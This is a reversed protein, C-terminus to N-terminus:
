ALDFEVECKDAGDFRVLRGVRGATNSTMTLGTAINGDTAFVPEDVEAASAGAVTLNRVTRGHIVRTEVIPTATTDGVAAELVIVPTKMTASTGLWPTLRGSVIACLMGAFVSTGNAVQYSHRPSRDRGEFIVDRVPNAM